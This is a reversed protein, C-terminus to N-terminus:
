QNNAPSPIKSNYSKYRLVLLLDSQVLTLIVNIIWLIRLQTDFINCKTPIAFSQTLALKLTGCQQVWMYWRTKNHRLVSIPVPLMCLCVTSCVVKSLLMFSPRLPQRFASTSGLDWGFLLPLFYNPKNNEWKLLYEWVDWRALMIKCQSDWMETKYVNALWAFIQVRLIPKFNHANINWWLLFPVLTHHKCCWLNLTDLNGYIYIDNRKLTSISDSTDM